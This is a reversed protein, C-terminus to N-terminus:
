LLYAVLFYIAAVVASAALVCGWLPIHWAQHEGRSVESPLYGAELAELDALAEAIQRQQMEAYRPDKARIDDDDAWHSM